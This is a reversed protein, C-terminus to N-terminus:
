GNGLKMRLKMDYLVREKKTEIGLAKRKADIHAIMKQAMAVPDPEYFWGAGVEETMGRSLYDSLVKSGSTPSTVGLGVTLGSAVFYQCIAVAKESMWEPACGVVPLDAIDEGLGGERVMETVAVLLRSNDVCSGCHLVPPMGVAECVEKLGAGALEAAEPVMLGAKALNIAACGTALVLVNYAILEKVLTVHLDGFRVRPNSCGAVGVIGRIRGNIINDNLPRYSARYRGGLIYRITEHSFGGICDVEEQPIDVAGRKPYNDIARRVLDRAVEAANHPHFEVHSVGAIRVRPSTTVLETHYCRAMSALGEMICQVDVMMLEVAGTAIALEQQLFSGAVPVGKRMLLENATCCIGTINIGKAGVQRARALLEEDRAAAVVLEPLLPEHGHVVINVQDERLVGLNVRARVPVPTGFLIDQLATAIMSGGWGDALATRMGQALLHRYEQDVGVSTRHMMEAIERDIGRPVLGQRRWIEQRKEPATSIFCLEGEQKGFEGLLRTGVEVALTNKDRAGVEIGLSAAVAHLKEEDKIALGPAEGRAAALFALVVERGHDGHAATGAAIMRCFNRAVIIAATAGCVGVQVGPGTENVRCPGMWCVRCCTGGAGYPCPKKAKVREFVTSVGDRAAKDIMQLSARCSTVSRQHNM